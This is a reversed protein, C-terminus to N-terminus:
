KHDHPPPRQGSRTRGTIAGLTRRAVVVFPCWEGGVAGPVGHLSPQATWMQVFLLPLGVAAAVALIGLSGPLVGELGWALFLAALFLNSTFFARVAAKETGERHFQGFGVLLCAGGVVLTTAYLPGSLPVALAAIALTAGASYWTARRVRRGSAIVPLTPVNAAAFDERYVFALVWAHAPTWAFVVLALVFTAPALPEVATWGALVPFSGASGGLVVGMWHRRKLLITYLGVYALAGLVMYAVSEVPLTALGLVTGLVFLGATFRLALRPDLRGSPLPRDATRDMYHDLHRDYYCNAAAASAAILGGALGFALTTSLDRGGAAAMAALGTISLLAVIRPKVLSLLDAPLTRDM